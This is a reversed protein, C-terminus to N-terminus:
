TFLLHDQDTHGIFYILQQWTCGFCTMISSSLRKQAFAGLECLFDADQCLEKPRKKRTLPKDEQAAHTLRIQNIRTSVRTGTFKTL